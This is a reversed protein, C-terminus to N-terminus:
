HSFCGQALRGKWLLLHFETCFLRAKVNYRCVLIWLKFTGNDDEPWWREKSKWICDAHDECWTPCDDAHQWYHSREASLCHISKKNTIRQTHQTQFGKEKQQRKGKSAGWSYYSSQDPRCGVELQGEFPECCFWAFQDVLVFHFISVLFRNNMIIKENWVTFVKVKFIFCNYM